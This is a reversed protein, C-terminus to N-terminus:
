MGEKRLLDSPTQTTFRRAFYLSFMLTATLVVGFLIPLLPSTYYGTFDFLFQNLGWVVTHALLASIIGALVILSGSEVLYLSFLLKTRAGFATFVLMDNMRERQATALMALILMCGLFLAPLATAVVSAALLSVVSKATAIIDGTPISTVNPYAQALTNQLAPIESEPLYAYGFSSKPFQALVDPSFVLFFFPLGSVTDVERISTVTATVPFGQVTFEIVSGLRLQARKAFDKEVSVSQAISTGHWAGEIIREGRILESASTINFERRMEPDETALNAQIDYGDRKAYRGRVIAFDQWDDGMIRKIGERQDSQIDILYINPAGEKFELALNGLMNAEILAITFISGLAITLSAVGSAAVSGQHALFSSVARAPFGFRSRTRYLLTMIGRAIGYLLVFLGGISLVAIGSVLARNTLAYMGLFFGVATLAVTVWIHWSVRHKMSGTYGLLLLKPEITAVRFLFGLSAFLCLFLSFLTVVGVHSTLAIPPLSTGIVSSAFPLIVNALINGLVGGIAGSLTAVGALLLAFLLILEEKRIGLARMVAITKQFSHLVYTLNLRVNVIVLFLALVIMTLFFREGSDLVRLLSTPGDEAVAVRYAPRPFAIKIQETVAQRTTSDMTDPLRLSLVHDLRSQRGDLGTSRFGEQSMVLLPGLRFAGGVRDPEKTIVNAITFTSSGVFLADGVKLHMRTLVDPAVFVEMGTPVKPSARDVGLEGYLPYNTDVVKLTILLSSVGLTSTSKNERGIVAVSDVRSSLVVGQSALNQLTPHAMDIRVEDEITIDGGTLARSERLFFDEISQTLGLVVGLTLAGVALSTGTLILRGLSRKTLRPLLTFIM